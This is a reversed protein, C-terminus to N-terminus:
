VLFEVKSSCGHFYMSFLASIQIHADTCVEEINMEKKLKDITQIFAEKEMTASNQQSQMNDMNVISLIQKSDNDMASYTCYTASQGHSSMIGDGAM